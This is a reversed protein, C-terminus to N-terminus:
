KGGLETYKDWYKKANSTDGLQYIAAAMNRYNAPNTPDKEIGIQAYDKAKGYDKKTLYVFSFNPYETLDDPYYKLVDNLYVIASDLENKLIYIVAISHISNKYKPNANLAKKHWDIALSSDSQALAIVGLNYYAESYSPLIETSRIYYQRSKDYYNFKDQANSSTEAKIRYESALASNARASNPATKVGSQYLEFNNKWVPTRAITIICFFVLLVSFTIKFKSNTVADTLPAKFILSLIGAIFILFGLTPVFLFREAFTAGIKLFFNNTIM